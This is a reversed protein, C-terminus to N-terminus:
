DAVVRYGNADLLERHLRELKKSTVFLNMDIAKSPSRGM